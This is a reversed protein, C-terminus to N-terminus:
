SESAEVFPMFAEGRIKEVRDLLSFLGGPFVAGAETADNLHKRLTTISIVPPKCYYYANIMKQLRDYHEEFIKKKAKNKLYRRPWLILRLLLYALYIGGGILAADESHYKYLGYIIAAPIVYRVIKLGIGKIAQLWFTREADGGSFVYAWNVIGTAGGSVIEKIYAFTECFIISDILIWDVRDTQLWPKSLYQATVDILTEHDVVPENDKNVHLGFMQNADQHHWIYQEDKKKEFDHRANKNLAYRLEFTIDWVAQLREEFIVPDLNDQLAERTIKAKLEKVLESYQQTGLFTIPRAPWDFSEAIERYQAKLDEM